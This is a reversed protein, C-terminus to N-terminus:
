DQKFLVHGLEDLRELVEGTGIAVCFLPEQAISVSLGTADSLVKPLGKLLAGGGTLTMGRDVIDSALEPPTDELLTMVAQIIQNVPDQLSEVVQQSTLVTEKPVGHMLDRGKIEMSLNEGDAICAAGITKKIKEATSEGILLNYNKRIYAVIAEDFADGGVRISRSKVIGGLSIVAVETTGGGIDVVMSGTPETVPLGAGIAAAMPEFILYVERAGAAEVADQIARREVPTSCYPVCVIVRPRAFSSSNVMKIFYKILAEAAGFDAIVGDKLPRIAEIGAPTRGLMSKAQQGFAYPVKGGKNYALAVVSPENVKIGQGEVYVLTNATGLDIGMNSSFRLLKSLKKIEMMKCGNRTSNYASYISYYWFGCTSIKISYKFFKEAIDSADGKTELM